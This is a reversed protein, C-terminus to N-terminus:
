FFSSLTVPLYSFSFHRLSLFFCCSLPLSEIISPFLLFFARVMYSSLPPSFPRCLLLSLYTVPRYLSFFSPIVPRHLLFCSHSSSVRLFLLSYSPSLTLFLLSQAISPSVPPLSHFIFFSSHSFFIPLSPLSQAISSSLLPLSQFIAFSLPPLPFLFVPYSFVCSVSWRWRVSQSHFSFHLFFLFLSCIHLCGRTDLFLFTFFHRYLWHFVFHTFHSSLFFCWEALPVMINSWSSLPPIPAIFPSILVFYMFSFSYQVAVFVFICLPASILFLFLIYITLLHFCFHFKDRKM